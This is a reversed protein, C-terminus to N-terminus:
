KEVPPKFEITAKVPRPPPPLFDFGEKYLLPVVVSDENVASAVQKLQSDYQLGIIYKTAEKIRRDLNVNTYFFFKEKNAQKHILVYDSSHHFSLEPPKTGKVRGNDMRGTVEILGEILDNEALGKVKGAWAVTRIAELTDVKRQIYV